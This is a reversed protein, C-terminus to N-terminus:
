KHHKGDGDEHHHSSSESHGANHHDYHDEEQHHGGAAASATGHGGHEHMRLSHKQGHHRNMGGHPKHHVNHESASGGDHPDHHGGGHKGGHGGSKELYSKVHEASFRIIYKVNKFMKERGFYFENERILGCQTKM